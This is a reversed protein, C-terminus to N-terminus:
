GVDDVERLGAALGDDDEIGNGRPSVPIGGDLLAQTGCAAEFQLDRGLPQALQRGEALAQLGTAANRLGLFIARRCFFDGREVLGEPRAVARVRSLSTSCAAGDIVSAMLAAAPRRGCPGLLLGGRRGASRDREWATFFTPLWLRLGGVVRVPRLPMTM